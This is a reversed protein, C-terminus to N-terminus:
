VLVIDPYVRKVSIEFFRLAWVCLLGLILVVWGIIKTNYIFFASVAVIIICLTIVRIISLIFNKKM